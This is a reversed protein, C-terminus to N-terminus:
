PVAKGDHDDVRMEEGIKRSVPLAAPHICSHFFLLQTLERFGYLSLGIIGDHNHHSIEIDRAPTSEVPIEEQM